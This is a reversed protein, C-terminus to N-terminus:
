IQYPFILKKIMHSVLPIQDRSLVTTEVRCMDNKRGLKKSKEQWGLSMLKADKEWKYKQAHLWTCCAVEGGERHEFGKKFGVEEM